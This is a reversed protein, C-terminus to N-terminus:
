CWRQRCVRPTRPTRLRCHELLLRVPNVCRRSACAFWSPRDTGAYVEQLRANASAVDLSAIEEYIDSPDAYRTWLGELNLVAYDVRQPLNNRRGHRSWPLGDLRWIPHEFPIRMSKGPWPFM